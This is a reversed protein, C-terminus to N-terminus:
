PLSNYAAIAELLNESEAFIEDDQRVTYTIAGSPILITAKLEKSYAGGFSGALQQNITYNELESLQIQHPKKTKKM